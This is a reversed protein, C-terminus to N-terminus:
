ESEPKGDQDLDSITLPDQTEIKEVPPESKRPLDGTSLVAKKAEKEPKM